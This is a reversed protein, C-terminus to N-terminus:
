TMARGLGRGGRHQDGDAVACCLTVTIASIIFSKPCRPIPTTTSAVGGGADRAAALRAAVGAQLGPDAPEGRRPAAREARHRHGGPDGATGLAPLREDRDEPQDRDPDYFTPSAPTPDCRHRRPGPIPRRWSRRARRSASTSPRKRRAIWCTNAPAPGESREVGAGAGAVARAHDARARRRGAVAVPLDRHRAGADGACAHPDRAPARRRARRAGTRLRRDLRANEDDNDM